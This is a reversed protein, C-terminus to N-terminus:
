RRLLEALEAITEAKIAFPDIQAGIATSCIPCSFVLCAFRNQGVTVETGEGRVATFVNDCSPCKSAM